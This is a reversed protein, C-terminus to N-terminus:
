PVAFDAGLAKALAWLIAAATELAARQYGRVAEAFGAVEPWPVEDALGMDLHEFSNAAREPDLAQDTLPVFGYRNVRPVREKDDQPLAFFARAAEFVDAMPGDLSHGVVAFFGTDCCAADLAGVVTGAKAGDPDARLAGIDIVPLDLSLPGAGSRYAPRRAM